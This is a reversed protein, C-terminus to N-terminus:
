AAAGAEAMAQLGVVVRIQYSLFAILQGLAVVAPTSLGARLLADIAARDGEIPREILKATFGLITQLRADAPPTANGSAVADVLAADAGDAVLRSRYHAALSDAKSLRCAHLAVLLRETVSIGQVAPSFMGEYSGQTSAVVKPRERRLAYLPHDPALPVAQDIVDDPTPASSTM